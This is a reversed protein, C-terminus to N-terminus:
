SMVARYVRKRERPSPAPPCEVPHCGFRAAFRDLFQVTLAIEPLLILAQRGEALSEAVAEFYAETKGSGTVGDLLTVTFERKKVAEPNHEPARLQHPNPKGADFEHDPPPRPEFGPLSGWKLARPDALGKVVGSSVGALEAIEGPMRALGDSLRELVRA